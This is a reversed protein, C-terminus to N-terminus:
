EMEIHFPFDLGLETLHRFEENEVEPDLLMDFVIEDM